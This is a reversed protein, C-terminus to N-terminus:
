LKVMVIILYNFEDMIIVQYKKNKYVAKTSTNLVEQYGEEKLKSRFTSAFSMSKIMNSVNNQYRLSVIGDKYSAKILELHILEDVNGIKSYEKWKSDPINNKVIEETYKEYYYKEKLDDFSTSEIENFPVDSVKDKVEKLIDSGISISISSNVSKSTNMGIVEGNQNFLPSGKTGVSLPISTQIYNENSIMIGKQILPDVGTKDTLTIVADEVELKNSDGLKVYSTGNNKVKLVAINTEPNATVIGDIEYVKGNSSITIYQSRVLATEIFDWTTVIIGDSIFFGNATDVILNNYNASLYVLNDLNNNYINKLESNTIKNAKDFNYITSLQSEYIPAISMSNTNEISDFYEDIEENTDGYLYYLKWEDGLKKYYYYMTLNTQVYVYEMPNDKSQEKMEVNPLVISSIIIENSKTIRIDGYSNIIIGAETVQSFISPLTMGSIVDDIYEKSNRDLGIIDNEDKPIEPNYRLNYFENKRNYYDKSSENKNNFDGFLLYTTKKTLTKISEETESDINSISTSLNYKSNFNSVVNEKKSNSSFTLKSKDFNFGRSSAMVTTLDISLLAILLIKLGKKM